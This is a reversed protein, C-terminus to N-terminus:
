HPDEQPYYARGGVVYPNGTKYVGGGKPAPEDSDVVRASPSVGWHSDVHSSSACNALFLCALASVGLGAGRPVFRWGERVRGRM